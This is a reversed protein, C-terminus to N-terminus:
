MLSSASYQRVLKSQRAASARIFLERMEEGLNVAHVTCKRCAREGSGFAIGSIM